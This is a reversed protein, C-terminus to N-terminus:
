HTLQEILSVNEIDIKVENCNYRLVCLGDTGLAHYRSGKLLEDLSQIKGVIENALSYVKVQKESTMYYGECNELAEVGNASLIVKGLKEDFCVSEAGLSMHSNIPLRGSERLSKIYGDLESVAENVSKEAREVIYPIESNVPYHKEVTARYARKAAQGGRMLDDFTEADRKLGYRSLSDLNFAETLKSLAMECQNRAGFGKNPREGLFVRVKNKNVTEENRNAM